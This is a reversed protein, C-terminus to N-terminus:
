LSDQRGQAEITSNANKQEVTRCCLTCLVCTRTQTFFTRSSALMSPDDLVCRASLTATHIHFALVLLNPPQMCGTASICACVVISLVAPQLTRRSSLPFNGSHCLMSCLTHTHTHAHSLSLSLSHQLSSFLLALRPPQALAWVAHSPNTPPFAAKILDCGGCCSGGM